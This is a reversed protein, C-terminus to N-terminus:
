RYQKLVYILVTIFISSIVIIAIARKTRPNIDNRYRGSPYEHLYTNKPTRLFWKAERAHEGAPYKSLYEDASHSLFYDNEEKLKRDLKSDKKVVDNQEYEEHSISEHTKNNSWFEVNYDPMAEFEIDEEDKVSQTKEGGHYSVDEWDKRNKQKANRIAGAIAMAGYFVLATLGGVVFAEGLSQYNKLIVLIIGM